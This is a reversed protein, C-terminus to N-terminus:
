QEANTDESPLYPDQPVRKGNYRGHLYIVIFGLIPVVLTGVLCIAFLSDSFGRGSLALVLVSIYLIVLVALCIWAIIRRVPSKM